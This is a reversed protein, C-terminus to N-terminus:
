LFYIFVVGFIVLLFYIEALEISPKIGRCTMLLDVPLKRGDKLLVSEVKSNGLVEQVQANTITDVGYNSLLQLFVHSGEPDLQRPLLHPFYEVITTKLGTKACAIANEIGLLGGGIIVISRSKKLQERIKLADSLTRLTYAHDLDLGPIPPCACSAGLALLLKNYRYYGRDSIVTKEERNITNIKEEKHFEINSEKYWQDSYIMLSEPTQEFDGLFQPLKPRSYYGYPETSFQIIKSDPSVQQALTRAVSIGAAGNGIIIYNM